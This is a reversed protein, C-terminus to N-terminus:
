LGGIAADDIIILVVNSIRVDRAVRTKGAVNQRWFKLQGSIEHKRKGMSVLEGGHAQLEVQPIREDAWLPASSLLLASSLAGAV